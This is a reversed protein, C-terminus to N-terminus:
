YTAVSFDIHGKHAVTITMTTCPTVRLQTTLPAQAIPKGCNMWSRWLSVNQRSKWAETKVDCVIVDRVLEM